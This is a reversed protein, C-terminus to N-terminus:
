TLAAMVTHERLYGAEWAQRTSTLIRQEETSLGELVGEWAQDFSVGREREVSLAERVPAFPSPM